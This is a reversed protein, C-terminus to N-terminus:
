AAEVVTLRTMTLHGIRRVAGNAAKERLIEPTMRGRLDWFVPFDGPECSMLARKVADQMAESRAERQANPLAV